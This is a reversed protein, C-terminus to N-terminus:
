ATAERASLPPGAATDPGGTDTVVRRDNGPAKSLHDLVAERRSSRSRETPGGCPRQAGAPAPHGPREPRRGPPGIPPSRLDPRLLSARPRVLCGRHVWGVPPSILLQPRCPRLARAVPRARRRARALHRLPACPGWARLGTQILREAKGDTRPQCPLELVGGAARCQRNRDTRGDDSTVWAVSIGQRALPGAGGELCAVARDKREDPSLERCALRARDDSCVHVSGWGAGRTLGRRDGARGAEGAWPCARFHDGVAASRGSEKTVVALLAGPPAGEPRVALPRPELAALRGPALRRPIRGGPMGPQRAIAPGSGRQRRRSETKAGRAVVPVERAGRRQASSREVPGAAAGARHRALRVCALRPPPGAAAALSRMTRGHETVRQAPLLGGRPTLPADHTNMPAVEQDASVAQDTERPHADKM